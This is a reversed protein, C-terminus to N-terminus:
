IVLEWSYNVIGDPTIDFEGINIESKQNDAPFFVHITIKSNNFQTLKATEEYKNISIKVIKIQYNYLKHSYCQATKFITDKNNPDQLEKVDIYESIYDRGMGLSTGPDM